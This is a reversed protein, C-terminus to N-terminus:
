SFNSFGPTTDLGSWANGSSLPDNLVPGQGVQIPGAGLMRALHIFRVGYTTLNWHGADEESASATDYGVSVKDVSKSNIPGQSVGPPAGNDASAQAQRSLVLNHATFLNVGMIYVAGTISGGWRSVDLMQGAFALWLDIVPEPYLLSDAFEPFARRFASTTTSM